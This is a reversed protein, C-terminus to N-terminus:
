ITNLLNHLDRDFKADSLAHHPNKNVPYKPHNKIEKLAEKHNLITHNGSSYCVEDIVKLVKEDMIQKIDVCYMPFGEPLDVMRGFLWCFVVWDYDAYYAHFIPNNYNEMLRKFSDKPGQTFGKIEKAIQENSKGYNKLIWKMTSYSFDMKNRMDGSVFDKYIPLLINDRIWYVKKHTPTDGIGGKNSMPKLDYRNWAEKLNFDKSIAYYERGDECVIGISILDITNKTKIKKRPIILFLLTFIAWIASTLVNYRSDSLYMIVCLTASLVSLCNILSIKVYDKQPGELFETDFYYNM